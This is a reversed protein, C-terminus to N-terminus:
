DRPLALVLLADRAAIFESWLARAPVAPDGGASHVTLLAALGPEMIAALDEIGQRAMEHLWHPAQSLKAGFTRMEAESLEARVGGLVAVITAAEHLTNWGQIVSDTDVGSGAPFPAGLATANERDLRTADM